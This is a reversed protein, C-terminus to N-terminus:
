TYLGAATVETRARLALLVETAARSDRFALAAKASAGIIEAHSVLDRGMRSRSTLLDYVLFGASSLMLAIASTAMTIFILKRKISWGSIRVSGEQCSEVVPFQCGSERPTRSGCQYRLSTQQR